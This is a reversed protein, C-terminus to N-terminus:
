FVLFLLPCTPFKQPLMCGTLLRRWLYYYPYCKLVSLGSHDIEARHQLKPSLIWFFAKIGISLFLWQGLHYSISQSIWYSVAFFLQYFLIFPVSSVPLTLATCMGIDCLILKSVTHPHRTTFLLAYYAGWDHAMFVFKEKLLGLMEVTAYMGNLVEEQEYGWPKRLDSASDNGYGPLCLHICRYHKGLEQPLLAGWGSTETDPFGAM